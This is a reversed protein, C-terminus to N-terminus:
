RAARGFRLADFFRDRATAYDFFKRGAAMMARALHFRHAPDALKLVGAPLARPDPDDVVEALPGNENAWRVASCSPPGWILMPVGSLSYDTIKSPFSLEMAVRLNPEFAMPTFLATCEDRLANILANSPVFPRIEINPRDLGVGRAAQQNFDSYVVVRGGMCDLAEAIRGIGQTYGTTWLSGAYGVVIQTSRQKLREPPVDFRQADPAYSPYLVDGSVGFRREYEEAM